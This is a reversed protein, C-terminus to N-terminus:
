EVAVVVNIMLRSSAAEALGRLGVVLPSRRVLRLAISAGM